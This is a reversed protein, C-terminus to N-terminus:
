IYMCNEKSQNHYIGKEFNAHSIVCRRRIIGRSISPMNLMASVFLSRQNEEALTIIFLSQNKQSLFIQAVIFIAATQYVPSCPWRPCIAWYTNVSVNYKINEHLFWYFM